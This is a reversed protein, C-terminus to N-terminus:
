VYDDNVADIISKVFKIQEETTDTSEGEETGGTVIINGVIADSNRYYKQWLATALPNVPLNMINGKLCKHNKTPHPFDEVRSSRQAETGKM